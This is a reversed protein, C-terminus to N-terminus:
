TASTFNEIQQLPFPVPPRSTEPVLEPLLISLAIVSVVVLAAVVLPLWAPVRRLPGDGSRQCLVEYYLTWLM